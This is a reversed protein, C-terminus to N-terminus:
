YIVSAFISFPAALNSITKRTKEIVTVNGIKEIASKLVTKEGNNQQQKESDQQQGPAPKAPPAAPQDGKYRYPQQEPQESDNIEGEAHIDVEDTKIKLKFHGKKLEIPDIKDAEELGGPTMIYEVDRDQNGWLWTGERDWEGDWNHWRDDRVGLTFWHNLSSNVSRDIVIRKGVPVQIAVVVRQNRFKENRQISFGRDIFIVSDWQSIGYGIKRALEEAQADGRGMSYRTYYIHYNSDNSREIKMGVNSLVLSDDTFRIEDGLNLWGGYYQVKENAVKVLMRDQINKQLPFDTQIRAGGSFNRNVSAILFIFSFLGLIWLFGFTYSLYPNGKSGAIKRIIWVLFALVPVGFFLLLTVWALLTQLGGDLFYGKFPMMAVGVGFITALLVLFAIGLAGSILLFFAKFIVGIAHGLGRGASRAAPAAETALGKAQEGMKQASQKMEQGMNQAKSKLSELDEKVTNRISNFDVKEGRMELKEAATTAVPLAIWLIVYTIFLTGGISNSIIKPGWWFDWDNWWMGFPGSVIGVILPLAFILRPIWVDINFYAAMGGCVGAIVRSDSSRYLRKTINTKLSQAPIVIWLIIYLLFGPGTFLLLIFIIRMIAPDLKFYNALGSCVGGIYMDDANRYLRGRGAPPVSAHSQGHQGEGAGADQRTNTNNFSTSGLTEGEAELDEPRGMNAIVANVDDDTICTTGKKLRESFLEAIRGEIDNIIEDRGEENMFYRRLSEVYQKLMEYATEEIPIIRGQFNINIVKKM